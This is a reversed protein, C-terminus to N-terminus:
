PNRLPILEPKIWDAHDYQIGDGGDTVQLTLTQVGTLDVDIQKPRDHNRMIGSRFLVKGDGLVIFEVTGGSTNDQVGVLARFRAARGRLPTTWISDAHTGVGKKYPIGGVSLPVGDIAKNVQTM